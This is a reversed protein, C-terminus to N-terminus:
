TISAMTMRGRLRGLRGLVGEKTRKRESTERPTAKGGAVGRRNERAAITIARRILCFAAARGFGFSADHGSRDDDRGVEGRLRVRQAGMEVAAEGIRARRRAVPKTHSQEPVNGALVRCEARGRPLEKGFVDVARKVLAEHKPASLGEPAVVDRRRPKRAVDVAAALLPVAIQRVTGPGEDERQRRPLFAGKAATFRQDHLVIHEIVPLAEDRRPRDLFPLQDLRDFRLEVAEDGEIRAQRVRYAADVAREIRAFAAEHNM